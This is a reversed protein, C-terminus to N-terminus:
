PTEDGKGLSCSHLTVDILVRTQKGESSFDRMRIKAITGTVTTRRVPTRHGKSLQLGIVRDTWTRDFHCELDPSFSINKAMFSDHKPTGLSLIIATPTVNRHHPTMVVTLRKGYTHKNLENHALMLRATEWRGKQQPLYKDPLHKMIAALNPYPKEQPPKPPAEKKHAETPPPPAKATDNSGPIDSKALTEKLAANQKELTAIRKNLSEIQSRLAKVTARLTLLEADDGRLTLPLALIILISAATVLRM